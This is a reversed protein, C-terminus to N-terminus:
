ISVGWVHDHMAILDKLFGKAYELKGYISLPIGM